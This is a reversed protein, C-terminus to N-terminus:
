RRASQAQKKKKHVRHRHAVRNPTKPEITASAVNRDICFQFSCAHHTKPPM